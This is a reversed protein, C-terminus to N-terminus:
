AGPVLIREAIRCSEEYDQRGHGSLLIRSGVVYSMHLVALSRSEARDAGAERYLNELFSLRREDVERVIEDIRADRRAWDRLTMELPGGPVELRPSIAIRVLRRLRGTPSGVSERIFAEIESTTRRRWTDVVADLLADRDRFHWYFSGKTVKLREALANVGLAEVGADSLLGIAGDIWDERRLRRGPADVTKDSGM